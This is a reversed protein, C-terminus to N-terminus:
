FPLGRYNMIEMQKMALLYQYHSDLACYRLLKETGSETELLVRIKNVGNGDMSASRLYPEIESSYDIVGFNVYTQFKLGTVGTRNDLIHAALMSDWKWNQVQTRLRVRSWADEFKMNHAMKGVASSSILDIFPQRKRKTEPLLFSFVTSENIAVSACIIKHGAAHPKLGTTEYDFAIFEADKFDELVSLDEIFRISPSTPKPFKTTAATIAKQLDQKWVTQVERDNWQVFSPHLTPVVWCGLGRDPIVFGRWKAIGGLNKRWREGIVSKLAVPGLLIIVKPELETITPLIVTNYCCQIQYPSAEKGEPALCNVANLVWCDEALDVDLNGLARQLFRGAKGQLPLGRRDDLADAAGGIILIGKEGKGTYELQPNLGNEFLTCGDCDYVLDNKAKKRPAKKSFVKEM